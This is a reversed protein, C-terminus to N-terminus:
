SAPGATVYMTTQGVWPTEFTVRVPLPPGGAALPAFWATGRKPRHAAAGDDRMFGAVQTGEFDCRLAPGTFSSRATRELVENGATRAVLRMVRRGDFLTASGDCRGTDAVQRVLQAMASLTDETGDTAAPPIPEREGDNPPVLTRVAPRGASFDILVHRDEGRRAGDSRFDRPAVGDAGRWTGTVSSTQASSVMAGVLGTTHYATAVAYGTGTIDLEARMHMAALGLAYADFEMVAHVHALEAARGGVPLCLLVALLMPSRCPM